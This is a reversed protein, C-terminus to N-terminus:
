RELGGSEPAGLMRHGLPAWHVSSRRKLHVVLLLVQYVKAVRREVQWAQLNKHSHERAAQRQENAKKVSSVKAKYEDARKKLLRQREQAAM